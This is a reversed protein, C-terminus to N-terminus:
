GDLADVREVVIRHHWGDGFDYLYSFHDGVKAVRDLRVRREDIIEREPDDDPHPVAYIKDGVEFEHLHADTWGMAAQIYHHLKGLTADGDLVLRRWVLPEVDQLEVRLTYTKVATQ